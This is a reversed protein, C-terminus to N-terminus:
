VRQRLDTSKNDTNNAEAQGVLCDLDSKQKGHVQLIIQSAKKGGRGGM